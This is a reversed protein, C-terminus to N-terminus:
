VASWMWDAFYRQSPHVPLHKEPLKHLFPPSCMGLGARAKLLSSSEMSIYDVVGAARCLPKESIFLFVGTRVAQEKFHTGRCGEFNPLYKKVGGPAM